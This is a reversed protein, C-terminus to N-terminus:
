EGKKKIVILSDAKHKAKDLDLKKQIEEFNLKPIIFPAISSVPNYLLSGQKTKEHIIGTKADIKNILILIVSLIFAMKLMGFLAGALKNFFGLALLNVSKELMKALLYVIIVIILFTIAFYIMASYESKIKLWDAMFYSFHVAGYIGLVISILSAVEIIFGKTFGKYIAWLLPVALIIDLYNM